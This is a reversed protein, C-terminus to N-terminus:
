EIEMTLGRRTMEDYKPKLETLSGSKVPCKGKYHAVFACTEAQLFDHDCVEVLSEIVFHFTNVEDNFLVLEKILDLQEDQSPLPKRKERVM